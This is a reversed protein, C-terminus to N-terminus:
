CSMLTLMWITIHRVLCERLTKSLISKVEIDVLVNNDIYVKM